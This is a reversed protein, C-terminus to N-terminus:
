VKITKEMLYCDLEFGDAHKYKQKNIIYFGLSEYFKVANLTAECTLKKLKAEKAENEIREFILSAVGKRQHEPSVFIAGIEQKNLDIFGTGIIEDNIQAVFFNVKEVFDSFDNPKKANVWKNIDMKNYFEESIGGIAETRLNWIKEADSSNAKRIYVM